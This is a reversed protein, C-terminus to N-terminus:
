LEDGFSLYIGNVKGSKLYLLKVELTHKGDDSNLPIMM